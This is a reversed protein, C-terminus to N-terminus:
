IECIRFKYKKPKKLVSKKKIQERKSQLEQEEKNYKAAAWVNKNYKLTQM